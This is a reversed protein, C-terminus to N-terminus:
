RGSGTPEAVPFAGLQGFLGLLDCQTWHEVIRGAEIRSIDIGPLTIRRFKRFGTCGLNEAAEEM